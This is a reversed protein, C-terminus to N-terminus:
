LQRFPSRHKRKSSRIISTYDWRVNANTYCVNIVISTNQTCHTNNNHVKYRQTNLRRTHEVCSEPQRETHLTTQFLNLISMKYVYYIKLLNKFGHQMYSAIDSM